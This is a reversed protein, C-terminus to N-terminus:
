NVKLVSLKYLNVESPSELIDAFSFEFHCNESYDVPKKQEFSLEIEGVEIENDFSFRRNNFTALMKSRKEPVRKAASSLVWDPGFQRLQDVHALINEVLQAPSPLLRIFDWISQKLTESSHNLFKFLLFYLDPQRQILNILANKPVPASSESM